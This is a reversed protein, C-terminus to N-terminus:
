HEPDLFAKGISGYRTFIWHGGNRPTWVVDPSGPKHLFKWADHLKEGDSVGPPNYIDFDIVRENPVHAPQATLLSVGIASQSNQEVSM